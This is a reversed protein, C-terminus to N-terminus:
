LQKMKAKMPAQISKMINRKNGKLTKIMNTLSKVKMKDVRKVSNM